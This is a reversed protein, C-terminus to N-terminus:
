DTFLSLQESTSKRERRGDRNAASLGDDVYAYQNIRQYKKAEECLRGFKELRSAQLKGQNRLKRNHKAWNVLDREEPRYKSPTHKYTHLYDMYMQWMNMWREDQTM